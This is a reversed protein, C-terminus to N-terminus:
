VPMGTIKSEFVMSGNCFGQCEGVARRHTLETMKSVVYFRNPPVVVGRFRTHECKAFGMFGMEPKRRMTYFACLQAACEIMMVGPMLPRGPVHGRVWFDNLTVDKYGVIIDDHDIVIGDIMAMEFRQPIIKEIGERTVALQTLDLQTLDCILQPPM